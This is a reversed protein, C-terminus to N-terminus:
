ATSRRASRADIRDLTSAVSSIARDSLPPLAACAAEWYQDNDLPNGTTTLDDIGCDLADALASIM